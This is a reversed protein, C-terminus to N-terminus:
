VRGGGWSQSPTQTDRAFPAATAQVPGRAASSNLQLMRLLVPAYPHNNLTHLPFTERSLMIDACQSHDGPRAAPMLSTKDRLSAASVDVTAGSRATTSSAAAVSSSINRMNGVFHTVAQTHDSLPEVSLENLFMEGSKTYNVLRVKISRHARVAAMLEDLAERSTEPGQLIKCTKGMVEQSTYGCLRVWAPNVHFIKYPPEASTFLQAETSHASRTLSHLFSRAHGGPPGPGEPECRQM